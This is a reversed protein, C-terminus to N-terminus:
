SFIWSVWVVRKSGQLLLVVRFAQTVVGEVASVEGVGAAGLAAKVVETAKSVMAVKKQTSAVVAQLSVVKLYFLLFKVIVLLM